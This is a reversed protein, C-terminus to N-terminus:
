ARELGHAVDAVRKRLVSGGPAAPRERAALAARTYADALAMFEGDLRACDAGAVGRGGGSPEGSVRRPPEGEGRGAAGPTARQRQRAAREDDWEVHMKPLTGKGGASFTHKGGHGPTGGCAFRAGDVTMISSSCAIPPEDGYDPAANIDDIVPREWA